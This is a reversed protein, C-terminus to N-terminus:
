FSCHAPFGIRLVCMEQHTVTRFGARRKLSCTQEKKKSLKLEGAEDWASLGNEDFVCCPISVISDWFWVLTEGAQIEPSEIYISVDTYKVQYDYDEWPKWIIMLNPYEGKELQNFESFNIEM